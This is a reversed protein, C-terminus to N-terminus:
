LQRVYLVLYCYYRGRVFYESQPCVEYCGIAISLENIGVCLLLEVLAFSKVESGPELKVALEELSQSIKTFILKLLQCCVEQILGSVFYLSPWLYKNMLEFTVQSSSICRLVPDLLPLPFFAYDLLQMLQSWM